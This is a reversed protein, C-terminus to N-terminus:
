AEPRHRWRPFAIPTSYGPETPLCLRTHGYYNYGASGRTPDNINQAVVTTTTYPPLCPAVWSKAWRPTLRLPRSLTMAIPRNQRFTTPGGSHSHSAMPETTHTCHVLRQLTYILRDIAAAASLPGIRTPGVM